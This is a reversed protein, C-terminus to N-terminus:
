TIGIHVGGWLIFNMGHRPKEGAVVEDMLKVKVALTEECVPQKAAYVARLIM